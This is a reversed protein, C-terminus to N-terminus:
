IQYVAEASQLNNKKKKKLFSPTSTSFFHACWVEVAWMLMEVQHWSSEANVCGFDGVSGDAASEHHLLTTNVFSIHFLSSLVM